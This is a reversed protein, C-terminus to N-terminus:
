PLGGDTPTWGRPDSPSVTGVVALQAHGPVVDGRISVGRTRWEKLEQRTTKLREAVSASAVGAWALAKEAVLGAVYAVVIAPYPATLPVVHAPMTCEVENSAEEIWTSWPAQAIVVVNVPSGTVDVAAGSSSASVQFTADTLPIAYYTTGEVINGPLTGGSEARFTVLDNTEFGHGDLVFVNSAIIIEAILRASNQV